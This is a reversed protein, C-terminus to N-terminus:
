LNVGQTYNKFRISYVGNKVTFEQKDWWELVKINPAGEAAALYAPLERQM